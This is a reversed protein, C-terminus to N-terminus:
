FSENREYFFRLFDFTTQQTSNLATKFFLSNDTLLPGGSQELKEKTQYSNRTCRM